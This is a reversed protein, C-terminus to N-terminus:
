VDTRPGSAPLFALDRGASQDNPTGKIFREVILNLVFSKISIHPGVQQILWRQQQETMSNYIDEMFSRRTDAPKIGLAKLRHTVATPHVELTKAITDLSLGISNLSVIDQDSAKRNARPVSSM